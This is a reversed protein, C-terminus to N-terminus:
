APSALRDEVPPRGASLAQVLLPERLAHPGSNPDIFERRIRLCRDTRLYTERGTMVDRRSSWGGTGINLRTGYGTAKSTGELVLVTGDGLEELILVPRGHKGAVGDGSRHDFPIWARYISRTRLRGLRFWAWILLGLLAVCGVIFLVPLDTMGEIALAGMEAILVGSPYGDLIMQGVSIPM